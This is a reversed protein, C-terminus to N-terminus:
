LQNSPRRTGGIMITHESNTAAKRGRRSDSPTPEQRGKAELFVMSNDDQRVSRHSDSQVRVRYQRYKQNRSIRFPADRSDAM